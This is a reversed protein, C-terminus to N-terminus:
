CVLAETEQAMKSGRDGIIYKTNFFIENGLNPKKLYRSVTILATAILMDDLPAGSGKLFSSDTHSM